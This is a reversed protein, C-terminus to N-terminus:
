SQQKQNAEIAQDIEDRLLRSREHQLWSSLVSALRARSSQTMARSQALASALQIRAKRASEASSVFQRNEELLALLIRGSFAEYRTSDQNAANQNTTARSGGQEGNLWTFFLAAHECLATDLAPIRQAHIKETIQTAADLAAGADHSRLVGFLCAV